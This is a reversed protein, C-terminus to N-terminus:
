PETRFAILGAGGYPSVSDSPDCIVSIRALIARFIARGTVIEIPEMERRPEEFCFIRRPDEHQEFIVDRDRCAELLRDTVGAIGQPHAQFAALIRERFPTSENM